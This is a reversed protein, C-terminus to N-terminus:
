SGIHIGSRALCTASANCLDLDSHRRDAAGRGQVPGAHIALGPLCQYLETGRKDRAANSGAVCGLGTTSREDYRHCTRLDTSRTNWFILKVRHSDSLQAARTTGPATESNTRAGCENGRTETDIPRHVVSTRKGRSEIPWCSPRSSSPGPKASRVVPVFWRRVVAKAPSCRSGSAEDRM